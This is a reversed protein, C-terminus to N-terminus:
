WSLPTPAQQCTFSGSSDEPGTFKVHHNSIDWPNPPSVKSAVWPSHPPSSLVHPAAVGALLAGSACMEVSPKGWCFPSDSTATASPNELFACDTCLCVPILDCLLDALTLRSGLGERDQCGPWTGELECSAEQLSNMPLSYVVKGAYKVNALIRFHWWKFGWYIYIYHIAWKTFLCIALCNVKLFIDSLYYYKGWRYHCLIM